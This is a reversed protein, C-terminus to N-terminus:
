LHLGSKLLTKIGQLLMEVAIMTLILGMLREIASLAKTGVLSKIQEAFFLITISFAWAICISLLVIKSNQIQNAYIMITTLISPGAIMPTAIPFIFPEPQNKIELPKNKPFIMRIAILFLILGGALQVTQSNVELALLFLEGLYYFILMIGLALLMERIIIIQRRRNNLSEVLDLYAIIHGVSNMILFMTLTISFLSM